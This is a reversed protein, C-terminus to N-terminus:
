FFPLFPYCVDRIKDPIGPPIELEALFSSKGISHFVWVGPHFGGPLLLNQLNEWGPSNWSKQIFVFGMFELFGSIRPNPTPFCLSSFNRPFSSKAPNKNSLISCIEPNPPLFDVQFDRSNSLEWPFPSIGMRPHIQGFDWVRIGFIGGPKRPHFPFSRGLSRGRGFILFELFERFGFLLMPNMGSNWGLSTGACLFEQQCIERKKKPIKGNGFAGFKALIEGFRWLVLM